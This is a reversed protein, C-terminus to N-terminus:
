HLVSPVSVSAFSYHNCFSLALWPGWTPFVISAETSGETSCVVPMHLHVCLLVVAMSEGSGIRDECTLYCTLTPCM